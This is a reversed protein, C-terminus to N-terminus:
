LISLYRLIAEVLLWGASFSAVYVVLLRPTVAESRARALQEHPRNASETGSTISM